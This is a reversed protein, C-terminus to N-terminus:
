RGHRRSQEFRYVDWQRFAELGKDALTQPPTLNGETRPTFEKFRHNLQVVSEWLLYQHGYQTWINETDNITSWDETFSYVEMGLTFTTSTETELPFRYVKNGTVQFRGQGNPGSQAWGDTPYRPSTYPNDNRQRELGEAVTTWEVPRFNGNVDFLGMEIISKVSVGRTTGREVADELSGGTVGDVNITVLRRSFEFDHLLEAQTRVQNLTLLALDQSNITLSGSTTQLYSAIATKIKDLTM